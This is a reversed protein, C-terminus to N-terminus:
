ERSKIIEDISKVNVDVTDKKAYKESRRELFWKADATNGAELSEQVNKLFEVEIESVLYNTADEWKEKLYPDAEIGELMTKTPLGIYDAIDRDKMGSAKMITIVKLNQIIKDM